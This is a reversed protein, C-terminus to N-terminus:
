APPARPVPGARAVDAASGDTGDEVQQGHEGDGGRDPGDQRVAEREVAASMAWNAGPEAIAATTFLRGGGRRQVRGSGAPSHAAMRAVVMPGPRIMVPETAVTIRGRIVTVGAYRERGPLEGSDSGHGEGGLEGGGDEAKVDGARMALAGPQSAEAPGCRVPLPAQAARAANLAPRVSEPATMNRGAYRHAARRARPGGFVDGGPENGGLLDTRQRTPSPAASCTAEPENGGLLDTRQEDPEPGGFADGGPENGGASTSDM